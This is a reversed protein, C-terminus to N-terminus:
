LKHSEQAQERKNGTGSCAAACLLAGAVEVGTLAPGGSPEPIRDLPKPSTGCSGPMTGSGAGIESTWTAGRVGCRSARRLGANSGALEALKSAATARVKSTAALTIGPTRNVWRERPLGVARTIYLITRSTAAAVSTPPAQIRLNPSVQGDLLASCSTKMSAIKHKTALIVPVGRGSASVAPFTKHPKSASRVLSISVTYMCILESHEAASALATTCSMTAHLLQM